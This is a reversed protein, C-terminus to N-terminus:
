DEIEEIHPASIICGFDGRRYVAIHDGNIAFSVREGNENEINLKASGPIAHYAILQYSSPVLADNNVLYARYLGDSNFNVSFGAVVTGYLADTIHFTLSARDSAGIYTKIDHYNAM